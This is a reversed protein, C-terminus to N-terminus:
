INRVVEIEVPVQVLSGLHLTKSPKFQNFIKFNSLSKFLKCSKCLNENGISVSSCERYLSFDISVRRSCPFHSGTSSFTREGVNGSSFNLTKFTEM